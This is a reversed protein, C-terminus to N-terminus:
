NKGNKVTEENALGKIYKKLEMTARYQPATGKIYNSLYVESKKLDNRKVKDSYNVLENQSQNNRDKLTIYINDKRNFEDLLESYHTSFILTAGNPNIKEDKFLNFITTIITKNFHNEIEDILVYGGNEISSIILSFVNIGKITGSSLYKELELISSIFIEQQHYFKLYTGGNHANRVYEISSDFFKIVEQPVNWNPMYFNYNTLNLSNGVYMPNNKTQVVNISIDKALYKQDLDSRIVLLEKDHFVYLEKKSTVKKSDKVRITEEVFEYENTENLKVTSDLKFIHNNDYYFVTFQIRDGLLYKGDVENLQKNRFFVDFIISLYNLVTTKGSANIGAIAFSNQSYINSFLHNLNEKDIVKDQATFDFEIIGDKFINNGEVIIKLLKMENVEKMYYIM